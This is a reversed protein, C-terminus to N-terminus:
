YDGLNVWTIVATGTVEVTVAGTSVADTIAVNVFLDLDTGGANVLVIPAAVTAHLDKASGGDVATSPIIDAETGTLTAEDGASASGLAMPFTAGGGEANTSTILGNITAGLIVISGAPFDYVKVGTGHDAGDALNLDHTAGTLTFTLTTQHIMGNGTEVTTCKNAVIAGAGVTSTINGGITVAKGSRGLTVSEASSTGIAIAGATGSTDGVGALGADITIAGGDGGTGSGLGGAGGAGSGFGLAGGDAGNATGGSVKGSGGGDGAVFVLAGGVAGNEDEGTAGTSGDGGRVDLLAGVRGANGTGAAGGGQTQAYIASGATDAAGAFGSIPSDDFKVSGMLTLSNTLSGVIGTNVTTINGTTSNLTTITGTTATFTGFTSDDVMMGHGVKQREPEADPTPCGVIMALLMLWCVASAAMWKASTTM